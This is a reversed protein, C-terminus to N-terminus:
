PPPSLCESPRGDEPRSCWMNVRNGGVWVEWRGSNKGAELRLYYPRLGVDGGAPPEGWDTVKTDPGFMRQAEVELMASEAYPGPLPKPAPKPEEVVRCGSMWVTDATRGECRGLVLVGHEPLLATVEARASEPFVCLVKSGHRWGERVYVHFEGGRRATSDVTGSLLLTRGKYRADAAVEARYATVLDEVEVRPAERVSAADVSLPAAPPAPSPPPLCGALLLCAPLLLCACRIPM